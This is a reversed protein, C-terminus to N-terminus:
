CIVHLIFIVALYSSSAFRLASKSRLAAKIPSNFVRITQKYNLIHMNAM